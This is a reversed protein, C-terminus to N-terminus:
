SNKNEVTLLLLRLEKVFQVTLKKDGHVIVEHTKNAKKSKVVKKISAITTELGDKWDPFINKLFFIVCSLNGKVREDDKVMELALTAQRINDSPGIIELTASALGKNAMAMSRQEGSALPASKFIMDLGDFGKSAESFTLNLSAASAASMFFLQILVAIFIVHKKM